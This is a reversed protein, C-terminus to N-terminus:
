GVARCSAERDTDHSAARWEDWTRKGDWRFVRATTCDPVRYDNARFRNVDPDFLLDPRPDGRDVVGIKTVTRITNHHVDVDRLRHAGLAPPGESRAIGTLILDGARGGDRVNGAVLNHAIEVGRSGRVLIGFEGNRLAVNGIIRGNYSAEYDIGAGHANDTVRNGRVLAGDNDLDFWIAHCNNASFTSDTLTLRVTRVFKAGGNANCAGTATHLGKQENATVELRTLVVDRSGVSGIGMVGNRRIVSAEVRTRNGNVQVGHNSALLVEVGTILNDAGDLRIGINNSGYVRVGAVTVDDASSEVVNKAWTVEVVHGAPPSGIYVAGRLYSVFAEGPGVTTRREGVIRGDELRVGVKELFAGDYLVDEKYREEPERMPDGPAGQNRTSELAELPRKWANALPKTWATLRVSGNITAGLPTAGALTQGRRLVIPATVRHVGDALCFTEGPAGAAVIAVVDDVPAVATGECAPAARGAAPPLALVLVALTALVAGTRM